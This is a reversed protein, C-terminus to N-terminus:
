WRGHANEQILRPKVKLWKCDTQEMYVVVGAGSAFVDPLIAAIKFGLKLDIKMAPENASEVIGYLRRVGLQVFPYHFVAWLFDRSAWATGDGAMHVWVSAGTYNTFLVGGRVFGEDLVGITNDVAPNFTCKANSAIYVGVDSNNFAIERM